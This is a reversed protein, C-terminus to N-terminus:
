SALKKIRRYMNLFSKPTSISENGVKVEGGRKKIFRRAHDMLPAKRAEACYDDFESVIAAYKSQTNKPSGGPQRAFSRCGKFHDGLLFIALAMWKAEAPADPAIDYHEFAAEIRKDSEARIFADRAPGEPLKGYKIPTNLLEILRQRRQSLRPVIKM